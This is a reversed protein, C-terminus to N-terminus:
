QIVVFETPVLQVHGMVRMEITRFDCRALSFGAPPAKTSSRSHEPNQACMVLSAFAYSSVFKTQCSSLYIGQLDGQLLLSQLARSKGKSNDCIMALQFGAEM